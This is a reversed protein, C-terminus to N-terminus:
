TDEHTFNLDSDWVLETVIITKLASRLVPLVILSEQLNTYNNSMSLGSGDDNIMARIEAFSKGKVIDRIENIVNNKCENIRCRQIYLDQVKLNLDLSWAIEMLGWKTAESRMHIIGLQDKDDMAIYLTHEGLEEYHLTFPLRKNVQIRVENDVLRVISKHSSANPYLDQMAATPDRLACFAVAFVMNPMLSILSIMLIIRSICTMKM